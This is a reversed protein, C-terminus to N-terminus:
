KLMKTLSLISSVATESRLITNGLSISIVNNNNKILEKEKQSFGGEPGVLCYIKNNINKYDANLKFIIDKIYNNESREDCFLIIGDNIKFLINDLQEIKNLIPFDLRESQEVGEIINNEVRNIKFHNSYDTKIPYFDTVGLEVANKILLDIKQIPAFILGLFPEKRYDKNKHSIYLICHRNKIVTIVSVFEGDKGNILIIKDDLKSRLVNNIYHFSNDKLLIEKGIFLNDKIFIRPM